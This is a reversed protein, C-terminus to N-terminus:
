KCFLDALVGRFMPHEPLAPWEGSEAPVGLFAASAGPLLRMRGDGESEGPQADDLVQLAARVGAAVTAAPSDHGEEHLPTLTPSLGSRPGDPARARRSDRVPEMGVQGAGGPAGVGASRM